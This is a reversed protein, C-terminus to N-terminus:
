CERRVVYSRKSVLSRDISHDHVSGLQSLGERALKTMTLGLSSEGRGEFAEWRFQSTSLDRAVTKIAVMRALRIDRASWVDAMGGRGIHEVVQYQNDIEIGVDM